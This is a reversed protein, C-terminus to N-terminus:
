DIWRACMARRTMKRAVIMSESLRAVQLQILGAPPDIERSELMAALIQRMRTMTLGEERAIHAVTLGTKLREPIRLRRDATARRPAGRRAPEFPASPERHLSKSLEAM